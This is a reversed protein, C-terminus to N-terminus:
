EKSLSDIEESLNVLKIQEDLLMLFGMNEEQDM